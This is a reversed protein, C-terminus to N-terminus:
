WCAEAFYYMRVYQIKTPELRSTFRKAATFTNLASLQWPSWLKRNQLMETNVSLDSQALIWVDSLIAHSVPGTGLGLASTTSLLGSQSCQGRTGHSRIQVNRWRTMQSDVQLQSSANHSAEQKSLPAAQLTFYCQFRERVPVNDGITGNRGTSRSIFVNRAKKCFETCEESSRLCRHRLFVRPCFKSCWFEQLLWAIEPSTRKRYEIGNPIRRKLM